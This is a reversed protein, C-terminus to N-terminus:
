KFEDFSNTLRKFKVNKKLFESKSAIFYQVLPLSFQLLNTSLLIRVSTKLM